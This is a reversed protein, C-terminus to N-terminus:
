AKRIEDFQKAQRMEQMTQEQRAKIEEASEQPMEVKKKSAGGGM